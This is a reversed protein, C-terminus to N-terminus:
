TWGCLEALLRSYEVFAPWSIDPPVGHDCGPIFGGMELLPPVVRLVEDRMEQGGAAIARKDIGGHYAMRDGFRSRFAVIDNGAAVEIPNCCNFVSEIWVPILEHIDGDSDMDYVAVDHSRLLEHWSHYTPQLFRRAMDPSVMSHAKYAMDESVLLADVQVQEFVIELTEITFRRWFEALEEVLEPEDAMMLCLGEMGLWERMQWFPGNVSVTVARDADRLARRLAKTEDTFREPDHAEYRWSLREWDERSQM